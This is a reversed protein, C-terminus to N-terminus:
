ARGGSCWPPKWGKGHENEKTVLNLVIEHGLFGPGGYHKKSTYFRNANILGNEIAFKTNRALTTTKLVDRSYNIGISKRIEDVIEEKLKNGAEKTNLAEATM